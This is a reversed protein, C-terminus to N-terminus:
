RTYKLGDDSLAEYKIFTGQPIESKQVIEHVMVLNQVPLLEAVYQVM